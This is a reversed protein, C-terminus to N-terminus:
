ISHWVNFTIYQVTPIEVKVLYIRSNSQIILFLLPYWYWYWVCLKIILSQLVLANYIKYSGARRRKRYQVRSHMNIISYCYTVDQSKLFIGLRFLHNKNLCKMQQEALREERGNRHFYTCFENIYEITLMIVYFILKIKVKLESRYISKQKCGEWTSM